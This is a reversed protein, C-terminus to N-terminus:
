ERPEHATGDPERGQPRRVFAFVTVVGFIVGAIATAIKIAWRDSVEGATAYLGSDPICVVEEGEPLDAGPLDRADFLVFGRPCGYRPLAVAVVLSAAAIVGAVVALVGARQM